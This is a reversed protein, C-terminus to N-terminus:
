LLCRHRVGRGGFLRSARRIKARHVWEKLFPIEYHLKAREVQLQSERSFTRTSFIDLVLRVRDICEIGLENELMYHQSPKLDANVILVDLPRKALIKKIDKLKGKGVFTSSVPRDRRQIIEYVIRLGASAALEELEMVDDTLTLIGASKAGEVDMNITREEM